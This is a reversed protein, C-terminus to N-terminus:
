LEWCGSYDAPTLTPRWPMDFPDLSPTTLTMGERIFYFEGDAEFQEDWAIGSVAAAFANNERISAGYAAALEDHLEIFATM